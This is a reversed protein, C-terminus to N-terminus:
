HPSTAVGGNLRTLGNALVPRAPANRGPNRTSHRRLVTLQMRGRLTDRGPCGPLLELLLFPPSRGPPQTALAHVTQLLRERTGYAIGSRRADALWEM